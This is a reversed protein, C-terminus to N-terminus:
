HHEQHDDQPTHKHYHGAQHMRNHLKRHASTLVLRMEKYRKTEARTGITDIFAVAGEIQELITVADAVAMFASNKVKVMVPSSHAAIIEPKDRYHGRVLIAMWSSKDIKVSWNGADEWKRVAKSERIEGNVILDVRSM